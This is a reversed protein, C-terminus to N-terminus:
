SVWAQNKIAEPRDPQVEHATSALAGETKDLTTRSSRLTCHTSLPCHAVRKQICASSHQDSRHLHAAHPKSLREIVETCTPLM